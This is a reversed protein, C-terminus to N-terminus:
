PLDGISQSFNVVDRVKAFGHDELFEVHDTWDARCAAFARDVRCEALARLAAGFLPHAVREFGPLCWPPHVRGTPEFAAYGVLRGDNEACLRTAHDAARAAAARRVQDATVPHFGPLRAAAANYVAAEHEADAPLCNRILM